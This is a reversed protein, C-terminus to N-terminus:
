IDDVIEVLRDPGIITLDIDEADDFWWSLEFVGLRCELVVAGSSGAPGNAIERALAGAYPGTVMIGLASRAARWWRPFQDADLSTSWEQEDGTLEPHVRRDELRRRRHSAKEYDAARKGERERHARRVSEALDAPLPEAHPDHAIHEAETPLAPNGETHFAFAEPGLAGLLEQKWPAGLPGMDIDILDLPERSARYQVAGTPLLVSGELELLAPFRETFAPGLYQLWYVSGLGVTTDPRGWQDEDYWTDLRDYIQGTCGFGYCAGMADGLEAAFRVLEELGGASDVHSRPLSIDIRQRGRVIEERGLEGMLDWTEYLGFDWMTNDAWSRRTGGTWQIPKPESQLMQKLSDGVPIRPPDSGVLKPRFGPFSDFVDGIRGLREETMSSVSHLTLLLETEPANTMGFGM